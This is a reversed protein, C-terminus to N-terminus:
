ARLLPSCALFGDSHTAIVRTHLVTRLISPVPISDRCHKWRSGISIGKVQSLTMELRARSLLLAFSCSLLLGVCPQPRSFGRRIQEYILSETTGASTSPRWRPAQGPSHIWYETGTRPLAHHTTEHDLKRTSVKSVSTSTRSCSSLLAHL